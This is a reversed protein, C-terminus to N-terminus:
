YTTEVESSLLSSPRLIESIYPKNDDALYINPKCTTSLLMSITSFCTQKTVTIYRASSKDKSKSQSTHRNWKYCM